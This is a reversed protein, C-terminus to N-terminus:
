TGQGAGAGEGQVQASQLQQQGTEGSPHQSSDVIGNSVDPVDGVWPLLRRKRQQRRQGPARPPMTSGAPTSESSESSDFTPSPFLMRRGTRLKIARVTALMDAHSPPPSPPPPEMGEPFAFTVYAKKWDDGRLVVPPRDKGHQM